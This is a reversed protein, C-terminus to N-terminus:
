DQKEFSHRYENFLQCVTLLSIVWTGCTGYQNKMGVMALVEVKQVNDSYLPMSEDLQNNAAEATNCAECM